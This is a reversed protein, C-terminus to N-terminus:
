KQECIASYYQASYSIFSILVKQSFGTLSPRLSRCVSTLGLAPELLKVSSYSMRLHKRSFFKRFKRLVDALM